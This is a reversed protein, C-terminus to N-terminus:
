KVVYASDAKATVTTTPKVVQETNTPELLYDYFDKLLVVFYAFMLLVGIFIFKIIEQWSKIVIYLVVGLFLLFGM